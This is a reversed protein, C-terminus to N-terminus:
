RRWRSPQFRHAWSEIWRDIRRIVGPLEDLKHAREM